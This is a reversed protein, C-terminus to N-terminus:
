HPLQYAEIHLVVSPGLSYTVRAAPSSPGAVQFKFQIFHVQFSPQLIEQGCVRPCGREPELDLGDRRGLAM